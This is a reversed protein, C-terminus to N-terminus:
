WLWLGAVLASRPCLSLAARRAVAIAQIDRLYFRKYEERFRLSEVLLLHDPGLWVSSGRCFDAAGARCSATRHADGSRDRGPVKARTVLYVIVWGVARDEVLSVPHGSM